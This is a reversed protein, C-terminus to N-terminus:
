SKDKKLEAMLDNIRQLSSRIREIRDRFDAVVPREFHPSARVMGDLHSVFLPTREDVTREPFKLLKGM